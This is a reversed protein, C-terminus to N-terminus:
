TVSEQGITEDKEGRDIKELEEIVWRLADDKQRRTKELRLEETKIKFALYRQRRLEEAQTLPRIRELLELENLVRDVIAPANPEPMKALEEATIERDPEITGDSRQIVITTPVTFDMHTRHRSFNNPRLRLDPAKDNFIKEIDAYRTGSRLHGELEAKLEASM